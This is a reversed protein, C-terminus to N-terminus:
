SYCYNPFFEKHYQKLEEIEKSTNIFLDTKDDVNDFFMNMDIQFRRNKNEKLRDEYIKWEPFIHSFNSIEDWTMHSYEKYIINLVQFEKKSFIKENCSNLSIVDYNQRKINLDRYNIECDSLNNNKILDLSNSAVPGNKLAFYQDGTITRGHNRMHYRDALWILKIAKMYNIKGGSLIAFLNLSQTAKRYNFTQNM